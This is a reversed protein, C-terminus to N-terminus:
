SALRRLAAASAITGTVTAILTLGCLVSFPTTFPITSQPGTAAAAVGFILVPITLPAILIALLLGGRKLTATIAAGVAGIFALAPTGVLLTAVVYGTQEPPLALLLGLLPAALVLPLGTAIWHALIRALVVLELPTGLQRYLDLTGDEEDSQFLRELGILTSLLAGIWLIAPAIRALLNLDPGVAFPILTVLVLFFVVGLAAGGGQRFALVLDRRILASMVSM